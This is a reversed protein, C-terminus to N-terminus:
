AAIPFLIVSAFGLLWWLRPKLYGVVIGTVLLLLMTPLISLNKIATAIIPFLPADYFVVTKGPSVYPPLIISLSGLAAAIIFSFVTTVKPAEAEKRNNTM